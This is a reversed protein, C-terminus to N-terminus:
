LLLVQPNVAAAPWAAMKVNNVCVVWIKSYNVKTGVHPDCLNLIVTPM